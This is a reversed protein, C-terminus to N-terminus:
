ILVGPDHKASGGTGVAETQKIKNRCADSSKIKLRSESMFSM